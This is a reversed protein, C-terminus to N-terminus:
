KAGHRQKKANRSNGRGKRKPSNASGSDSSNEATASGSGKADDSAELRNRVEQAYRGMGQRGVREGLHGLKYKETLVSLLQRMLTKLPAIPGGKGALLIADQRSDDHLEFSPHGEVMEVVLVLPMHGDLFAEIIVLTPEEGIEAVSRRLGAYWGTTSPQTDSTTGEATASM